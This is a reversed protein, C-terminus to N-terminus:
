PIPRELRDRTIGPFAILQEVTDNPKEPRKSLQKSTVRYLDSRWEAGFEEIM